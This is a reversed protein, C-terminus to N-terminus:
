PIPEEIPEEPLEPLLERAAGIKSIEHEEMRLIVRLYVEFPLLQQIGQSNNYAAIADTMIKGVGARQEPSASKLPKWNVQIKGQPQTKLIGYKVFREVVDIVVETCVEGRREEVQDKWQDSDVEAGALAGAPNGTLIRKPISTACSILDMLIDYFPTPSTINPSMTNASVGTLLLDRRIGHIFEEIEKKMQTRAETSVTVGPDAKFNIGPFGGQWYMESGGACIKDMNLVYNWVRMLAPVGLTENDVVESPIHIIRSHHVEFAMASVPLNASSQYDSTQSGQIQYMKPMNYRESTPDTEWEKITCHQQSYPQLYTLSSGKSVETALHSISSVDNLGLLLVAYNGIRALTDTRKLKSPLNWETFLETIEKEFASNGEEDQSDSVVPLYRWCANPLAQIIRTELGGRLFRLYCAEFTIRENSPYGASGWVDRKGDYTSLHKEMISRIGSNIILQPTIDYM